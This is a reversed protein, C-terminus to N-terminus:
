SRASAVRVRALEDAVDSTAREQKDAIVLIESVTDGVAAVRRDIEDDTPTSYILTGAATIGGGNAVYDPVYTVGAARLMEGHQPGALQNNALGCVIHAQLEPITEDNLGGGLACPAFIDVAQAHIRDPNVAVAGYTAVAHEVADDRVDAVVLEAGAAHCHAALAGGAAGLGQIAVTRGALDLVGWVHKAAAQLAIYGGLATYSSPNFGPPYRSANAFIYDCGEALIEADAPGVGVDIATWFRGGLAQVHQSFARFLEPKRPDTPDAIIVCKGGGLPLNALANKYTMGESLRLVDTLADDVSEYPQMRCGGAAPGLSTDHIAIIARLGVTADHCFVVQEHDKFSMNEFVPAGEAKASSKM